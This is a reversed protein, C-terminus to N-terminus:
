TPEEGDPLPGTFECRSGNWFKDAYDFIHDGTNGDGWFLLQDHDFVFECGDEPAEYEYELESIFSFVAIDDKVDKLNIQITRIFDQESRANHLDALTKVVGHETESGVGAPGFVPLMTELSTEYLTRIHGTVFGLTNKLLEERGEQFGIACLIAQSRGSYPGDWKLKIRVRYKEFREYKEHRMIALHNQFAAEDYPYIM